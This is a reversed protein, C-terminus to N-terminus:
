SETVPRGVVCLTIGGYLLVTTYYVKNNTINVTAILQITSHPLQEVSVVHITNTEHESGM